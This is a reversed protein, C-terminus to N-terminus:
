RAHEWWLAVLDRELLRGLREVEPRFEEQLQGRLAGDLPPRPQERRNVRHLPRLARRVGGYLPGPLLVRALRHGAVSHMLRKLRRSRVRKSPNRPSFSEPVYHPDVELFELLRRFTARSDAILDDLIVVHVRERGFAEYWRELQGAFRARDRYRWAFRSFPGGPLGDGAARREEAALAEAFDDIDEAMAAVHQMHLSYMMEVPDRLAVVIRADPQFECILRPAETSYLYTASAEGVRREDRAGAFLAMYDDLSRVFYLGDQESGSDMDPSFFRPEKRVSMFVDPHGRLWAYLTTTGCKPAGVIFLDPKRM